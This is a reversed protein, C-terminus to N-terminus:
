CNACCDTYYTAQLNIRAVFFENMDNFKVNDTTFEQYVASVSTEIGLMSIGEGPYDIIKDTFLNLLEEDARHPVLPLLAEINSQLILAIETTFVGGDYERADSVVFYTTLDYRDDYKCDYYEGDIFVEPIFGNDDFKEPNKYARPYSQWNALNLEDYLYEQLGDIIKDVGIPSIKQVLAM